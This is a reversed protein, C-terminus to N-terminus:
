KNKEPIDFIGAELANNIEVETISFRHLLKGDQYYYQTKPFRVGDVVLDGAEVIEIKEGAQERITAVLRADKRSFYRVTKRGIPANYVLVDCFQERWNTTGIHRVHEFNQLDPEYFCFLHHTSQRISELESASLPRMSSLGDSPSSRILVGKDGHLLTTEVIDDILVELRQSSPKRAVLLVEAPMLKPNAPEIQGKIKLTVVARLKADLGLNERAREIVREAEEVHASLLSFGSLFLIILFRLM